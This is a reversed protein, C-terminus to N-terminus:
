LQSRHSTFGVLLLGTWITAVGHATGMHRVWAWARNGGGVRLDCKCECFSAIEGLV